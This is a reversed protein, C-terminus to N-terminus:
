GSAKPSHASHAAVEVIRVDPLILGILCGGYVCGGDIGFAYKQQQLRRRADHGFILRQPGKWTTIWADGAADATAQQPTTTGCIADLVAITWSPPIINRMNTMALPDQHALPVRPVLGAHVVADNHICYLDM